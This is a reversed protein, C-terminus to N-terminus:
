LGWGQGEGEQTGSTALTGLASRIPPSHRGANNDETGRGELPPTPTPNRNERAVRTIEAIVGQLSSFVQDNTFRLIRIGQKQLYATRQTDYDYKHDHSTGDLEIGLQCAPCYFDLVFPGIGQQRRFKLGDTSRGKLANWLVAEAPTMSNRLAKRLDKQEAINAKATNYHM